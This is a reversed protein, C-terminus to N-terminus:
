EGTMPLVAVELRVEEIGPVGKVVELAREKTEEAHLWGRIHALGKEPVEVHLTYPAFNNELLAAEVRKMQSLREMTGLATMSCAKMEPSRAVEMIFKAASDISLKETNIILDYLSPDNWDMHFAFRFFGAQKSDSKHILKAAAYRSLGQQNMM